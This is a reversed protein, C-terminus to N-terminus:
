PAAGSMYLMSDVDIWMYHDLFDQIFGYGPMVEYPFSPIKCLRCLMLM